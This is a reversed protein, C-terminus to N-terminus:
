AYPGIRNGQGNYCYCYCNGPSSECVAYPYDSPCHSWNVGCTWFGSCSCLNESPKIGDSIIYQAAGSSRQVPAVQIPVKMM